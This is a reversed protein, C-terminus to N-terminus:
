IVWEGFLVITNNLCANKGFITTSLYHKNRREAMIISKIQVIATSVSLWKSKDTFGIDVKQIKFEVKHTSKL